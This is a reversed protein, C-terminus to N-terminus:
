CLVYLECERSAGRREDDGCPEGNDWVGSGVACVHRVGVSDVRLEVRGGAGVCQVWCQGHGEGDYDGKWIRNFRREDGGWREAGQGGGGCVM